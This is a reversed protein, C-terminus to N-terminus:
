RDPRNRKGSPGVCGHKGDAHNGRDSREGHNKRRRFRGVPDKSYHDFRETQTSSEGYLERIMEQMSRYRHAAQVSLGKQIVDSVRRSVQFHEERALMSLPKVNDHTLRDVSEQPVKGSIMRYITASLAYVDTWPGQKGNSQYQEVPAYGHKLLITMSKEDNLSAMRAAGFDILKVEQNPTILINDPSIDRHIIGAKHVKELSEMLPRMLRLM